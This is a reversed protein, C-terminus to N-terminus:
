YRLVELALKWAKGERRWIRLYNDTKGNILTTGYVYGLDGGKAIGSGDITYAIGPPMTSIRDNLRDQAIAPFTGNRLLLYNSKSISSDYWSQREITDQTHEIFEKETKLLSELNGPIFAPKHRTLFIIKHDFSPSNKIGLDVMFKWEGTKTKKWVTAFQGRTIIFEPRKALISDKTKPLYTWPRTTFGLDGSAAIESYIHYWNLIGQPEERKTWREIANVAKGNEFVVGNSDAFHLFAAKAGRAVSYAAFQKEANIVEELNHKQTFGILPLHLMFFLLNNKM